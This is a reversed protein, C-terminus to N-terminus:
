GASTQGVTQKSVDSKVPEQHNSHTTVRTGLTEPVVMLGSPRSIKNTLKTV